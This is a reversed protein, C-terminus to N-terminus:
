RPQLSRRDSARFGAPIEFLDAPLPREELRVLDAIRYEAAGLAQTRVPFGIKALREFAAGSEGLAAPALRPSPLRALIGALERRQQTVWARVTERGAHAEYAACSFGRVLQEKGAPRWTVASRGSRPEGFRGLMQEVQKRQAPPLDGLQRRMRERVQALEKAAKRLEEERIEIYERSAPRVIATTGKPLDLLLYEEARDGGLEVRVRAGKVLMRTRAARVGSGPRDRLEWVKEVPIAFVREPRAPQGVDGLGVLAVVPVVVSEWELVGEFDARASRTAVLCVCLSLLARLRGSRM